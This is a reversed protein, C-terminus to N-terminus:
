VDRHEILVVAALVAVAAYLVLVGFGPWPRLAGTPHLVNIIQNGANAPMYNIVHNRWDTPLLDTVATLAFLIGFFASLGGGITARLVGPDHPSVGAHASALLAQGIGFM